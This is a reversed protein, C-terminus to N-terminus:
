HLIRWIHKNSGKSSKEVNTEGYKRSIKEDFGFWDNKFRLKYKPVTRVLGGYSSRFYSTRTRDEDWLKQPGSTRTGDEDGFFQPRSTRTRDEDWFKLVM